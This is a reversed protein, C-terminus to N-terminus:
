KNGQRNWEPKILRILGTELGPAGDVPLGNWEFSPPTAVLVQVRAGARLTELIRGKIHASTKQGKHGRIYHGLRTRLANRTLGVYKIWGDVAFAYVGAESPTAASYGFSDDDTLSCDCLLVFQAEILKEIPWPEIPISARKATRDSPTRAERPMGRILTNRVHQPRIDLFHAIETRSFGALDLARIKDAKTTLGEVIKQPLPM